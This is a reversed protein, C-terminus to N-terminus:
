GGGSGGASILLIRRRRRHRQVARDATTSAQEPPQGQAIAKAYAADRVRREREAKRQKRGSFLGM